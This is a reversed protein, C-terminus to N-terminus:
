NKTKIEFCHLDNKHYQVDLNHTECIQRVLALGLGSSKANGSVFRNFITDNTLTNGEGTNCIRLLHPEILIRVSGRSINHQLANSLLNSILIEALFENMLVVFDGKDIIECEIEKGEFFTSLDNKKRLIIANFTIESLADFQQNEIKALLILSKNLATLRKLSNIVKVVKEFVEQSIEYQLIEELNMQAISLPTQIEHSANETFEKLISFDSRLKRTFDTVIANLREFEDIGSKELSLGQQIKLSYNEIAHLNREFGQWVLRNMRRTTIFSIILASALLILFALALILMLDENEFTSQRINILYWSGSIKIKSSHELFIEEEKEQENRIVVKNFPLVIDPENETKIVEIVPYLNPVQGTDLIQKRVLYEMSLLKEKAGYELVVRLIFYGTTSVIALVVVIPVLYNRNIKTLFKM